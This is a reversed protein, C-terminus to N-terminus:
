DSSSVVSSRRHGHESAKDAAIGCAVFRRPACVPATWSVVNTGAASALKSILIRACASDLIIALRPDGLAALPEVWLLLRFVPLKVILNLVNRMRKRCPNVVVNRIPPIRGLFSQAVASRLAVACCYRHREGQTVTEQTQLTGSEIQSRKLLADSISNALKGLGCEGYEKLCIGHRRGTQPPSNKGSSSANEPRNTKRIKRRAVHM